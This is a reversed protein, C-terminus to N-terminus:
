LQKMKWAVRGLDAIRWIPLLILICILGALAAINPDAIRRSVYLLVYYSVLGILVIKGFAEIAWLRPFVVGILAIAASIAIGLSWWTQWAEGAANQVSGVGNNWGVIGFFLFFLDTTPLVFRFIGRFRWDAASVGEPAWVTQHWLRKM